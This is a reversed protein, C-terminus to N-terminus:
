CVKLIENNIHSLLIYTQMRFSNLCSDNWNLNKTAPKIKKPQCNYYKTTEFPHTMKAKNLCVLVTLNQGCKCGICAVGSKVAEWLIKDLTALSYSILKYLLFLYFWTKCVVLRSHNAFLVICLKWFFGLLEFFLKFLLIRSTM